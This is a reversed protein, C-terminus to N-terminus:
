SNFNQDTWELFFSSFEISEGAYKGGLRGSIIPPPLTEYCTDSTISDPYETVFQPFQNAIAAYHNIEIINFGARLFFLGAQQQVEQTDVTNDDVIIKYAVARGNVDLSDVAHSDINPDLPYGTMGSAPHQILIYFSENLQTTTNPGTSYNVLTKINYLGARSIHVGITDVLHRRPNCRPDTDSYVAKQSSPIIKITDSNTSQSNAISPSYFFLLIFFGTFLFMRVSLSFIIDRLKEQRNCDNTNVSYRRIFRKQNSRQQSYIGWPACPTRRPTLRFLCKQRVLFIKTSFHM